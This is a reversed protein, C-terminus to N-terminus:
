DNILSFWATFMKFGNYIIMICSVPSQRPNSLGNKTGYINTKAQEYQVCVNKSTKVAIYYVGICLTM